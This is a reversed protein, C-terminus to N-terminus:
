RRSRRRVALVGGGLALLMVAASPEPMPTASFNYTYSLQLQLDPLGAGGNAYATNFTYQSLMDVYFATGEVFDNLLVPDTIRATVAGNLLLNATVSGGTPVPLSASDWPLGSTVLLYRGDLGLSGIRLFQATWAEAVSGAGAPAPPQLYSFQTPLAGFLTVSWDMSDLHGLSSDFQAGLMWGAGYTYQGSIHYDNGFSSGNGPVQSFTLLHSVTLSRARAALPLISLIALTLVLIKQKM